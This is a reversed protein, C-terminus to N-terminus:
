RKWIAMCSYDTHTIRGRLGENLTVKGSVALLQVESSIPVPKISDDGSDHVIAYNATAEYALVLWMHCCQPTIRGNFMTLLWTSVIVPHELDVHKEVFKVAEDAKSLDFPDNDGPCTFIDTDFFRNFKTRNKLTEVIGFGAGTMQQCIDTELTRGQESYWQDRIYEQTFEDTGFLRTANSIAAPICYFPGLQRTGNGLISRFATV